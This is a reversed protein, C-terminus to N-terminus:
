KTRYLHGDAVVCEVRGWRLAEGVSGFFGRGRLNASTNCLVPVGTINEFQVLVAYLFPDDTPGVTQLRASGDLHVVAPIRDRWTARVRHEYLMYPDPGGPDFVDSACHELCVPAIPRYWERAKIENLRERMLECRPDALISRHGLARPGLEAQGQLLVVPEGNALLEAVAEATIPTGGPADDTRLSPGAYVQWDLQSTGSTTALLANAAGLACGADNPFPPVWVSALGSQSRFRSNWKINLAAGGGIGLHVAPGLKLRSREDEILQLAGNVLEDAIVEHLSALLDAPEAAAISPQALVARSLEWARRHGPRGRGDLKRWETRLQVKLEERPVGTAIYAMVKGAVDLRDRVPGPRRQFPARHLALVSYVNLFMGFVQGIVRCTGAAADVVFVTPPTGGDWVLVFSPGDIIHPDTGVVAYIHSTVHGCTFTPIDRFPMPALGHGIWPREMHYYPGATVEEDGIKHRSWQEGPRAHWGDIVVADLADLDVEAAEVLAELDDRSRVSAYRHRGLKELEISRVLRPGDLVALAADHTVKLGAILVRLEAPFATPSDTHM